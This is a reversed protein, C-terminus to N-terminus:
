RLTVKQCHWFSSETLKQCNTLIKSYISILRYGGCTYWLNMHYICISVHLYISVLLVDYIWTHSVSILGHYIYIYPYWYFITSEHIPYPFMDMIYIFRHIGTFYQLNMYPIRFCTWSIITIIGIKKKNKLKAGSLPFIAWLM